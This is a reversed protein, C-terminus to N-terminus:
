GPFGIPESVHKTLIKSSIFIHRYNSFRLFFSNKNPWIHSNNMRMTATSSKFNM